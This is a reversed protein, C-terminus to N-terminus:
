FLDPLPPLSIEDVWQALGAPVRPTGTGGFLAQFRKAPASCALSFGTDHCTVGQEELWHRASQVADPAPRFKERTAASPLTGSGETRFLVEFSVTAPKTM